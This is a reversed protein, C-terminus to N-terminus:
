GKTLTINTEPDDVELKVKFTIVDIGNVDDDDNNLYEANTDYGGYRVHQLGRRCWECYMQFYGGYALYDLFAKIKTGATGKTGKFVFEVTTEYAKIPIIDPVFSEKGSQDLWDNSPVDKADGKIKFPYKTIRINWEDSDHVTVDNLTTGDNLYKNEKQILFRKYHEM